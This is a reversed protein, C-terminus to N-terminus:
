AGGQAVPGSVESALAVRVRELEEELEKVLDACAVAAGRRAQEEIAGCLAQMGRAGLHGSSGKLTHAARELASPDGATVAARLGVLRRTADSLFLGVVETVVDPEDERQVQRLKTIAERDIVLSGM